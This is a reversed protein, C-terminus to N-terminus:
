WVSPLSVTSVTRVFNSMEFRYMKRFCPGSTLFQIASRRIEDNGRKQMMIGVRCFHNLYHRPRDREERPIQMEMNRSICNSESRHSEFLARFPYKNKEKIVPRELVNARMIAPIIGRGQEAAFFRCSTKASIM